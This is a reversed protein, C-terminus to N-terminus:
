LSFGFQIEYPPHSPVSSSKHLAYLRNRHHHHYQHDLKVPSLSSSRFVTYLRRRPLAVSVTYLSAHERPAIIIRNLKQPNDGHIIIIIYTHVYGTHTPPFTSCCVVIHFSSSSSSWFTIDIEIPHLLSSYLDASQLPPHSHPLPPSSTLIPM